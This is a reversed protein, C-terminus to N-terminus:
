VSAGVPPPSELDSRRQGGFVKALLVGDWRAHGAPPPADLQQLLRSRFAGEDLTPPRGPRHDDHLGDLGEREFRTRWKSVVAKGLGLQRAIEGSAMGEAARLIIRARQAYRAEAKPRRLLATLQQREDRSLIIKTAPRPM